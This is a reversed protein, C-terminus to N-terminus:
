DNSDEFAPLPHDNTPLPLLRLRFHTLAVSIPIFRRSRLQRCQLTSPDELIAVSGWRGFLTPLTELEGPCNAGAVRLLVDFGFPFHDPHQKHQHQLEEHAPRREVHHVQPIEKARLNHVLDDTRHAHRQNLEQGVGRRAGVGDSVAEHVPSKSECKQFQKRKQM